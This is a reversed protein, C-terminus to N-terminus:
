REGRHHLALALADFMNQWYREKWKRDQTLYVRLVPYRTSLTFAVEQKTAWGNGVVSKRVTQAPYSAFPLGLQKTQRGILRTLRDLDNLWPLPHRHTREVVVADPRHQRLLSRVHRRVEPLRQKRPLLRLPVVGGSLLRRGGLVAFGLDRLGPDFALITHKTKM